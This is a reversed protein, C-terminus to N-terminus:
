AQIRGLLVQLAYAESCDLIDQLEEVKRQMVLFPDAAEDPVDAEAFTRPDTLSVEIYLARVM